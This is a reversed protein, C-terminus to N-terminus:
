PYMIIDNSKNVIILTQTTGSILNVDILSHVVYEQTQHM